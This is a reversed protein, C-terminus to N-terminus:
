RAASGSSRSRRTTARRSTAAARTRGARLVALRRRRPPPETWWDDTWEWVNGAMDFLGYGNAPFSGVPATRLFGSEGTSRWPFDPGDWTNAM